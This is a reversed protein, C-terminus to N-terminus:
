RDYEIVDGSIKVLGLWINWDEKLWLVGMFRTLRKDYIRNFGRTLLWKASRGESKIEALMEDLAIELRENTLATITDFTRM